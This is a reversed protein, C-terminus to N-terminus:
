LQHNKSEDSKNDTPEEKAPARLESRKVHVVFSMNLVSIEVCFNGDKNEKVLRGQMGAFEGSMITAQAGKVLQATEYMQFARQTAEFRRIAEIEKDPVQIINHQSSVIYIVGKTARTQFIQKKNIRVFLYCPFMPKEPLEKGKARKDRTALMPLYYEIPPEAEEFRKAVLTEANHHTMVAVWSYQSTLM